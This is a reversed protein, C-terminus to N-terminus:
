KIYLDKVLELYRPNMSGNEMRMAIESNHCHADTTSFDFFTRIPSNGARSRMASFRHLKLHALEAEFIISDARDYPAILGLHGGDALNQRGYIVLTKVTLTNEHRALARDADPSSQGNVFFPPNCIIVDCKHEPVYTAFDDHVCRLRARWPSAEFNAAAAMAAAPEIELGTISAQPMFQAAILALLGSGTGIDLVNRATPYQQVFWAGFCVSDSCTKQGCGHDDVSFQKFQFAGM